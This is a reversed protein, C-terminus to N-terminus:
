RRDMWKSRGFYVDIDMGSAIWLGIWTTGFGIEKKVMEKM